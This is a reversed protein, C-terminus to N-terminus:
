GAPGLLLRAHERRRSSEQENLTDLNSDYDRLEDASWMSRDFGHTNRFAKLFHNRERDLADQTRIWMSMVKRVRALEDADLPASWLESALEVGKPSLDLEVAAKEGLGCRGLNGPNTSGPDGRADRAHAALDTIAAQKGRSRFVAEQLFAEAAHLRETM